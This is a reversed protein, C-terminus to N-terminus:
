IATEEDPSEFHHILQKIMNTTLELENPSFERQGHVLMNRMSQLERFESRIDSSIGLSEFAIPWPIRGLRFQSTDVGLRSVKNMISRELTIWNTLFSGVAEQMPLNQEHLSLFPNIRSENQAQRYLQYMHNSPSEGLAFDVIQEAIPAADPETQLKELVHTLWDENDILNALTLFRFLVDTRGMVPDAIWRGSDSVTRYLFSALDYHNNFKMNRGVRRAIAKQIRELAIEGALVLGNIQDLIAHEDESLEGTAPKYLLDHEVEAWAHMLVSAIQIEIPERAYALDGTQGKKLAVLYHVAGYGTFRRTYIPSSNQTNNDAPFVRPGELIDFTDKVFEQVKSLDGPFYLGVRVGALDRIDAYIEQATAYNKTTNRKDVKAKLRAPSKARYTVMHRVGAGLLGTECQDACTRSLKAYFEYARRYQEMFEDVAAM